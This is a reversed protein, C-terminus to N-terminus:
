RNPTDPHPNLIPRLGDYRGWEGCAITTGRWPEYPEPDKTYDSDHAMQQRLVVEQMLPDALFVSPPTGAIGANALMNNAVEIDRRLMRRARQAETIGLEEAHRHKWQILFKRVRQRPTLRGVANALYPTIVENRAKRYRITAKM